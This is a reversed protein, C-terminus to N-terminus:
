LAIAFGVQGFLPPLNETLGFNMSGFGMLRPSFKYFLGFGMMTGAGQQFLIAGNYYGHYFVELKDTIEQELAWQVTLMNVNLNERQVDDIESRHRPIIREGTVVNVADQVGSYGITWEINTKETVPLDFNLNVSPQWGGSFAKTGFTSQIYVELSMAPICWDRRDDWCHVKLDFAIPSFGDVPSSGYVHTYGSGFIRFEVDDTVGYRLLFPTSYSSPAQSDPGELSFPAIELYSRGRPLTYASNPFDGLDPGPEDINPWPPPGKPEDPKREDWFPRGRGFFGSGLPPEPPDAPPARWDEFNGMGQAPFLEPTAPAPAPGAPEVAEQALCRAPLILALLICMAGALWQLRRQMRIM